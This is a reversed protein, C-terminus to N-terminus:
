RSCSGLSRPSTRAAGQARAPAVLLKRVEQGGESRTRMVESVSKWTKSDCDDVM